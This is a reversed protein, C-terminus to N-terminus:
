LAIEPISAHMDPDSLDCVVTPVLVGDARAVDKMRSDIVSKFVVVVVTYYQSDHIILQGERPTEPVRLNLLTRKDPNGDIDQFYFNCCRGSLHFGMQERDQDYEM